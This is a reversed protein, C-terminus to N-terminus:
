LYKKYTTILYKECMLNWLREKISIQNVASSSTFLTETYTRAHTYSLSLSLSLSLGPLDPKLDVTLQVAILSNDKDRTALVARSDGVNGIVVDQDQFVM